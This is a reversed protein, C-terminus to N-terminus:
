YILFMILSSLRVDRVAVLQMKELISSDDTLEPADDENISQSFLFTYIIQEIDKQKDNPLYICDTM